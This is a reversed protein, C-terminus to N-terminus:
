VIYEKVIEIPLPSEEAVKEVLQELTLTPIAGNPDLGLKRFFQKCLEGDIGVQTLPTINWLHFPVTVYTFSFVIDKIFVKATHKDM